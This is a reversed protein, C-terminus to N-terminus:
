RFRSRNSVDSVADQVVAKFDSRSMISGNYQITVTTDKGIEQLEKENLKYESEKGEGAIIPIGNNYQRPTFKGGNQAFPWVNDYVFEGFSHLNDWGKEVYDMNPLISPVAGTVKDITSESNATGSGKISDIFDEGVDGQGSIFNLFFDALGLASNMAKQMFEILDKGHDKLWGMVDKGLDLFDSLVGTSIMASFVDIGKNIFDIISDANDLIESIFKLAFDTISPILEIIEPLYKTVFEVALTQVDSMISGMDFGQETLTNILKTGIDQFTKGTEFAWQLIKVVGDLLKLGFVNMFPMFFLNFATNILDFIAQIVPSTLMIKKMIKFVATLISTFMQFGAQIQQVAMNILTSIISGIMSVISQVMQGTNSGGQQEKDSTSFISAIGEQVSSVISSVMSLASTIAQGLGQMVGLMQSLPDDLLDGVQGFITAQAQGMQATAQQIAQGFKAQVNGVAEFAKVVTASHEYFWSSASESSKSTDFTKVPAVNPVKINLQEAQALVKAYKKHLNGESRAEERVEKNYGAGGQNVQIPGTWHQQAYLFKTSAKESRIASDKIDNQIKIIQKNYPDNPNSQLASKIMGDMHIIARAQEDQSQTIVNKINDLEQQTYNSSITISKLQTLNSKLLNYSQTRFRSDNEMVNIVHQQNKVLRSLQVQMDSLNLDGSFPVTQM